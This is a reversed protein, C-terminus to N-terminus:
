VGEQGALRRVEASRKLTKKERKRFSAVSGALWVMSVAVFTSLLVAAFVGLAILLFVFNLIEM